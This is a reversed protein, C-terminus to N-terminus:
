PTSKKLIEGALTGNYKGDDIVLRGNILLYQVGGCYRSPNAVTARIRLNKLDVVNIDAKYGEKIWGRDKFGM